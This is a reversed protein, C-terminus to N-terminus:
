LSLLFLCFNNCNKCEEIRFSFYHIRCLVSELYVSLVAINGGKHIKSKGFDMDSFCIYEILDHEVKGHSIQFILGLALLAHTPVMVNRRFVQPMYIAAAIAGLYNVLLLGSGLFTINRVGLKTALTSIQFKRDGEVDPLDKTIAIVLAFVTVFITIFTVPSSCM